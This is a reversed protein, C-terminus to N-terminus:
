QTSNKKVIELNAYFAEAFPQIRLFEEKSITGAFRVRKGSMRSRIMDPNKVAEEFREKTVRMLELIAYYEPTYKKPQFHPDRFLAAKADNFSLPPQIVIEKETDNPLIEEKNIKNNSLMAQLAENQKQLIELDSEM